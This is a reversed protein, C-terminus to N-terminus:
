TLYNEFEQNGDHTAIDTRRLIFLVAGEGISTWQLSISAGVRGDLDISCITHGNSPESNSLLDSLKEKPRKLGINQAGACWDVECDTAKGCVIPFHDCCRLAMMTQSVDFRQALRKVETLDVPRRAEARLVYDPVLIQSAIMDCIKELEKGQRPCHLGTREFVAHAVEHAITFRRRTPLEADSYAIELGDETKRLEGAIMLDPDPYYTRIDVRPLIMDLNTPPLNQGETLRRGIEAAAARVSKTNTFEKIRRAAASRWTKM